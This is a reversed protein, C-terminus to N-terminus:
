NETVEKLFEELTVKKYNEPIMFLQIPIDENKFSYLSYKLLGADTPVYYEVPLGPLFRYASSYKAPIDKFYYFMFTKDIGKFNVKLKNAKKDCIKKRGFSKKYSIQLSTDVHKAYDTKIAFDGKTTNILLYSKELRLHKILEQKGMSTSFNIIKLLSDKAYILMKEQMSDAPAISNIQFLMEGSFANQKKQSHAYQFHFIIGLFFLFKLFHAM